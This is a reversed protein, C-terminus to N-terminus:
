RVAFGGADVWHQWLLMGGRVVSVGRVGACRRVIWDFWGDEVASFPALEHRLVRQHGILCAGRRTQTLNPTLRRRM